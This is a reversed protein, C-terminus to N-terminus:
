NPPLMRGELTARLAAAQRRTRRIGTWSQWTATPLAPASALDPAFRKFLVLAAQYALKELEEQTVPPQPELLETGVIPGADVQAIMEHLTAGFLRTNEHAAFLAPSWGPYAPSGPHFNYAGFGAAKLIVEPVIEAFEFSILRAQALRLDTQKPLDLCRSIQFFRLNQNWTSLISKFYRAELAPMLLYVYKM